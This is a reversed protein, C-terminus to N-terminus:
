STFYTRLYPKIHNSSISGIIVFRIIVYLQRYGVPFSLKSSSSLTMGEALAM